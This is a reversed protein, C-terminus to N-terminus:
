REMCEEYFSEPESELMEDVPTDGSQKNEEMQFELELALHVQEKLLERLKEEDKFPKSLEMKAANLQKELDELKMESRRMREDLKGITNEIRTINGMSSPGATFGYVGKGTLEINIISDIGRIFSITFGAYNGVVLTDGVSKGVRRLLLELHESADSRGRHVKHELTMSFDVKRNKQYREADIRYKEIQDRCKEIQSPYSFVVDNQLEQNKAKWSAKLTQLRYIENDVEMKHKMRPDAALTKFEAYQLVTEDIDGCSRASSRGTMIQSIYKQKQELIQWLYADFTQETIYNFISIEENENGQRLIRGNRQTLDAPRWPVDLHHLAILKNQVNMGTGMKETSGMLIRIEGNRVKEFLEARRTDTNYDHIFTIEQEKVGAATLEEKIAQYFSYSGDQKPTGKDCFILQTSKKEKTEHYISAVNRACANLKTDPNYPIRSDLIRPDIALLRAENTLKLFNDETSDVIGNRIDEARMVLEEMKEKQEPTIMTKVAQFVGTKLKPVPIEPLMDSTKIDAVLTFMSMLEPLNHFHAFRNKMQYGTGEPRLELSSEVVGFTSAWSDFLFIGRSKLESPQLAKQMVYLESMSNTVPTGTLYVLGKEGTIENIYQSKMYMDMARQSSQGGVGAVNRMKTFSYNNKYTHAEDIILCDVGLQEFNITNDKKDENFLHDYRFQLNKQFAYLQKLTWSKGQRSKEESIADSLEAMEEQIAALQKEKSLNILEFSSHAMIIADYDGTAIRSVFRRRNKKELDKKTAVLLNDQPYLKMYDAAWQGVLYNPVAILPKNCIGLRKREHAIVVASFTKGAGVEHAALVKANGYIGRAILDRQNKRLSIASNLDPFMLNDGNFERPRVNNFRDNYLKTLADGREPEEFLWSEFEQKIQAQKERALLTETRNLVYKVKDEGTDMDVYEVRDKVEVSRLNLSNELIEYANKRTTGYTANVCVSNPESSKGTIHYEGTYTAFEIAIGLSGGRLGNATEFKEYMFSEYYETPIWTSGLTFNIDEPTLPQPQVLQLAEVNRNFREPEDKAYFVAEKLKDKVYGSLYEEAVVWGAYPKGYYMAPDQYIRAGLEAIIEGKSYNGQDPTHYLYQMYDLDVCGKMNLSLQLAEEASGARKPIMRPRVTAQYFVVAKQFEGKIKKGDSDKKPDEISRLLPSDSDKAFASINAYSNVYGYRATFRDYVLNTEKLYRELGRDFDAPFGEAIREEETRSQFNILNWLAEKVELLGKIREEKMGGINQLYMRSDERYYLRGEILAYCGNKVEPIAPLWDKIETDGEAALEVDPERYVAHLKGVANKLLDDLSQDEFPMCSTSTENAYMSADFTMTGLMMEPHDIFYSNIPVGNEDEEVSLWNIAQKDPVIEQERKQLFLIDTTATTGAVKYFANKPLRIAGILEARQAIYSRITSNKKDLTFKSTIFAIIGGPRVQDLTKAIFYDHIRFGYRDYRRDSIKIANFPINGVAVDFFSDSFETDEYGKIEIYANPYLEKAIRGSLQDLEVGYLTSEKMSDPLVSFFNGTGMAPDLINGKLFGFRELAEYIYKIIEQETYYATLSSEAASQMEEENLLNQLTEYEKEWGSKGPTLANALGGWGVYKALIIQEEPTAHCNEQKLRKILRIAEINNRCKEKPGGDYLHHNESYIYNARAIPPNESIPTETSPEELIPEETTLREGGAKGAKEGTEASEKPAPVELTNEDAIKEGTEGDLAELIGGVDDSNTEILGLSFLSLQSDGNREFDRIESASQGAVDPPEQQINEPEYSEKSTRIDGSADAENEVALPQDRSEEQSLRVYKEEEILGAITAAVENWTLQTFDYEGFYFLMAEDRLVVRTQGSGDEANGYTQYLEHIARGKEILSADSGMVEYIKKYLAEPYLTTDTLINLYFQRIEEDSYRRPVFFARGSSDEEGDSRAAKRDEIRNIEDPVGSGSYDSRRRDDDFSEHAGGPEDYRGEGADASEGIIETDATREAGGSGRGSENDDPQDRRAHNFRDGTGSPSGDHVGELNERIKRGSDSRVTEREIHKFESVANRGRGPYIGSANLSRQEYLRSREEKISEIEQYVQRLVTRAIATSCAGLQMFLELSGYHSIHDFADEGMIETSLGCKKFIIYIASNQVYAAFEDKVAELPAGYLVSEPERVTFDKMYPVLKKETHEIAMQVLAEEISEGKVGYEKQFRELLDSKYQNEVKWILEMTKQFSELDGHTDAFDFYYTLKAKPDSMDLVAIAKSYKNVYRGTRINWDKMTAILGAEPRQMYVLVNKDFSLKYFKAASTLLGTWEQPNQTLLKVANQYLENLDTVRSM